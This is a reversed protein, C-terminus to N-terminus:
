MVKKTKRKRRIKSIYHSARLALDSRRSPSQVKFCIESSPKRFSSRYLSFFVQLSRALEFDSLEQQKKELERFAHSGEQSAKSRVCVSSPPPDEFM